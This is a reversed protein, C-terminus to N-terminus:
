QGYAHLVDGPSLFNPNVLQPNLRALEDARTYDGYWRFATLHLNGAVTVTRQVLPPRATIVALAAAQVALAIDKLGEVIPRSTQLDYVARHQTIATQLASRTDDAILEIEAPSLTADAAEDALIASATDALQLAVAVQVLATVYAVDADDAKAPVISSGIATASPSATSSGSASPSSTGSNGTGSGTSSSSSSGSSSSSNATTNVSAHTSIGVSTMGSASATVATGHNIGAPLQVTNALQGSLSKWDSLIVGIDFSRLDAMGSLCHVIDAAFAQPFNIVDLGTTIISKVQNRIAGLTGTMVSRLANLQRMKGKITALLGISQGFAAVANARTATTLATITAAQQAPLQKVFFGPSTTSEIFALEVTCSDVHDAEHAVSYHALQAQPVSGFVPHILEGTGTGDLANLFRKLRTDYDAGWFIASLTMRRAKRGLDEVEAGDRYPYEHEALDRSVADHVRLVDFRIGRFSADQLTDQWSM